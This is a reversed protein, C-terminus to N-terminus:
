WAWGCQASPLPRLAPVSAPSPQSHDCPLLDCPLVRVGCDSAGTPPSAQGRGLLERRRGRGRGGM